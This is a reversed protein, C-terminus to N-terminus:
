SEPSMADFTSEKLGLSELCFIIIYLLIYNMGQTYEVGSNSLAYLIKRM